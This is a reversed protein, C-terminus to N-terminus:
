QVKNPQVQIRSKIPLGLSQMITYESVLFAQSLGIPGYRRSLNSSKVDFTLGCHVLYSQRATANAKYKVRKQRSSCGYTM